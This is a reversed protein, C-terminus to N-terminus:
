SLLPAANDDDSEFIIQDLTESRGGGSGSGLHM